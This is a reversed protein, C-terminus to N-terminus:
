YKNRIEANKTKKKLIKKKMSNLFEYSMPLVYISDDRSIFCTNTSLDLLKYGKVAFSCGFFVCQKAKPNFNSRNHAITSSFCLCNFVKVHSYSPIQKHLLKYPSKDVTNSFVSLYFLIFYIFVKPKLKLSPPCTSLKIYINPPSIINKIGTEQKVNHQM